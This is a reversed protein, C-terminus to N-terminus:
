ELPEETELKLQADPKKHFTIQKDWRLDVATIAEQFEHIKPVLPVVRALRYAITNDLAGLILTTERFRATVHEPKRLDLYQFHLGPIRTLQYSIVEIRALMRPDMRTGPTILLNRLGQGKYKGPEYVYPALSIFEQGSSLAYPRPSKESAFVKAWPQKEQVTVELRTPFMLRRVQVREIVPFDELLANALKGTHISYIPMGVFPEVYTQLQGEQMLHANRMQYRPADLNWYPSNVIQGLLIIWLIAFLMKFLLRIRSYFVRRKKERRREQLYSMQRRRARDLNRKSKIRATRAAKMSTVNGDEEEATGDEGDGDADLVVESLDDSELPAESAEVSLSLDPNSASPQQESPNQSEPGSM